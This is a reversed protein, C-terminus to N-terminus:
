STSLHLPRRSRALYDRIPIVPEQADSALRLCERALGLWLIEEQVDVAEGARRLYDDSQKQFRKVQEPSM